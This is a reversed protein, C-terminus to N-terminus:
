EKKRVVFGFLFGVCFGLFHVLFTHISLFNSLIFYYLLFQFGRQARYEKWLERKRLLWNVLVGICAFIAPSAGYMYGSPCILIFAIGVIVLGLHYVTVFRLIGIKKELYIGVYWLAMVNAWIHWIATQTYGYTLLRYFQFDEFVTKYSEGLWDNMVGDGTLLVWFVNCESFSLVLNMIFVISMIVIAIKGFRNEKSTVISKLTSGM